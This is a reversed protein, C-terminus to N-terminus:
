VRTEFMPQQNKSPSSCLTWTVFHTSNRESNTIRL